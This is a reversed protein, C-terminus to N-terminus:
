DSMIVALCDTLSVSLGYAFGGAVCDGLCAFNMLAGLYNM